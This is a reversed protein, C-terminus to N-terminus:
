LGVQNNTAILCGTVSKMAVTQEFFDHLSEFLAFTILFLSAYLVLSKLYSRHSSSRSSKNLTDMKTQVMAKPFPRFVHFVTAFIGMFM